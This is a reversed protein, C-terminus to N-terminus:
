NGEPEGNDAEEDAPFDEPKVFQYGLMTLAMLYCGNVYDENEADYDEFVTFGGRKRMSDAVTGYDTAPMIVVEANQVRHPPTIWILVHDYEGKGFSVPESLKFSRCRGALPIDEIHTTAVKM